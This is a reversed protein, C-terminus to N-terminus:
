SRGRPLPDGDTRYAPPSYLNVTRLPRRGTNRIEHPEGREVLVLVGSRLEHQRGNIVAIGAGAVVYFWQDSGRHRNDPGGESEGPLLTMTAAQSRRNGGLVHFGRGLRPRFRKM